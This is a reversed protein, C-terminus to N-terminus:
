TSPAPHKNHAFLAAIAIIFVPFFELTYRPESNDLTLLLASRLAITAIMSWALAPYGNWPLGNRSLNRWRRLGFGALAFYALNLAAYALSFSSQAPHERFKWWELVVPLMETRPRFAMNLLRAVPLAIYYRIPDAHIREEALAQFRADLAPSANSTLDYDAILADTRAYQSDSDFARSPLDSIEIPAGNYNWYVDETSAFDIAWTRYWRQFGLPVREGPDTAYRPALPQFVHFTKWNRLTWPVLPLVVLLATVLVPTAQRLRGAPANHGHWATWLMAPLIAAALLGQEPRLLLAYSLTAALLFLWRNCPTPQPAAERSAAERSTSERSSSQWSISQLLESWRHFAYFALAICTLTLTEALGTATYNATFPCLTALWLAAYFARRGFLRGALSALVLCSFLDLAVQLYLVATYHERGFLTFCLVLFAPYGPLRILTPQPPASTQTFGYVGHDLWNKAIDGYILTDGAITAAHSVFWLRLLLGAALALVISLAPLRQTPTASPSGASTPSSTM